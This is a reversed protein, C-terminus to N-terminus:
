KERYISKPDKYKKMIYLSKIFYFFIILDAFWRFVIFINGIIGRYDTQNIFMMYLIPFVVGILYHTSTITFILNTKRAVKTEIITDIKIRKNKASTKLKKIAELDKSSEYTNKDISKVIRGLEKEAGCLQEYKKDSKRKTEEINENIVLTDNISDLRHKLEEIEKKQLQLVNEYDLLLEEYEQIQVDNELDDDRLDDDDLLEDINYTKTSTRIDDDFDRM